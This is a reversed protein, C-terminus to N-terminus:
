FNRALRFGAGTGRLDLAVYRVSVFQRRHPQVYGSLSSGGLGHLLLAIPDGPRWGPPRSDHLVLRDGDPMAILRQTTPERFAKGKWAFGLATQLHGNWLLPLPRFRPSDSPPIMRM